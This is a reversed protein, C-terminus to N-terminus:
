GYWSMGHTRLCSSYSARPTKTNYQYHMYTDPADPMRRPLGMAGSLHMGWFVSTTGALLVLVQVAYLLVVLM